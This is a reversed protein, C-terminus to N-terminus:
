LHALKPSLLSNDHLAWLSAYWGRQNLLEEHTGREVIRGHNLCLILDARPCVELDHTVIFTTRGQALNDLATMVARANEEDLGTTPEDLILLAARRVAARAIAIRQRQGNSLTLGREGVLTDYGQPLSRIFAHAQAFHAASEIEDDSLELGCAINDRISGSFLLTDQLVVAIQPRVSSLTYGRLDHGDLLIQGQSPDYLRQLLHLVTSKGHGSPGVLAVRQGPTVEFDVEHLVPTGPEYAFSVQEFRVGGRLAPAPTAGPLDRVEPVTGLLESIREVGALARAIRGAYKASNQVPKFGTKMYSVFVLFEGASITGSMVLRAGWWLVVASAIAILVDVGRELSAELRRGTVSHQRTLENHRSFLRGFQGELSLAQVTKIAGLSEAAVAALTGSRKRQSRSVARIGRGMRLSLLVFLPVALIAVIALRWELYLMLGLMGLLVLLNSVMPVLASVAVDEIMSVDNVLKVTLEGGRERTHFSLSLRQLHDYVKQRIESMLRNGAHTFALSHAYAALARLVCIAVLGLAAMLLLTAAVERPASPHATHGLVKDFVWKLPWPELLRFVTEAMLATWAGAIVWRNKRISPWAEQFLARLAPAPAERTEAASM